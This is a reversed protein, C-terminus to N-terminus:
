STLKFQVPLLVESAVGRHNVTAPQFLWDNVAKLASQDLLQHGSSQTVEVRDVKGVRDIQVRLLVTGSWGHRRAMLPYTPPPNHAIAFDIDVPTSIPLEEFIEQEEGENVAERESKQQHIAKKNPEALVTVIESAMSLQAEELIRNKNVPSKIDIQILENNKAELRSVSPALHLQYTKQISVGSQSVEALPVPAWALFLHMSASLGLAGFFLLRNSTQFAIKEM